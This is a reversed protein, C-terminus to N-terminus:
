RAQALELLRGPGTRRWPLDWRTAGAPNGPPLVSVCDGPAGLTRSPGLLRMKVLHEQHRDLAGRSTSSM